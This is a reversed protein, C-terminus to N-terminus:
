RIVDAQNRPLLKLFNNRFSIPGTISIFSEGLLPQPDILYLADDVRLGSAVEFENAGSDGPGGPPMANTVIVNQVTVLAGEFPSSAQASILSQLAVADLLTPVISLGSQEIEVAPDNLQIQSFFNNVRAREITIRDGVAVTPTEATFSYIGSNEVGIFEASNSDLQSWFGNSAVATVVMDNMTILEGTLTPDTKVEYVTVLQPPPPDFGGIPAVPDPLDCLDGLGNSDTDAQVGPDLPTPPNFVGVCNDATDDVGDGDADGAGAIGTYADPTTRAPLCSPENPWAGCALLPYAGAPADATIQAFTEGFEREACIRKSQGCVDILECNDAPVLTQILNDDGYLPLGGRMVLAVDDNGSDIIARLDSHNATSWITIDAVKGVAIEGIVDGFGAIQAVNKTALSVLEEDTFVGGWRDSWASACSLERAMNASGSSSWITGLGIKAGSAKFVPVMATNGYLSTDSRPSWVLRTGRTVTNVIDEYALGAGSDIAVPAELVDTSGAGIGSLCLFENRATADIGEAVRWVASFAATEDEIDPYACGNILQTGNSDGLPFTDVDTTDRGAFEDNRDLNRIMGDQNGSTVASTVGALVSRLEEWVIQDSGGGFGSPLQSFGRQGRRWDHRQLYKESNNFPVNHSFSASVRGNILGPSIVADTCMLTTATSFTAESSCDCGACVIDGDDVLVEANTLLGSEFFVDGQILVASGTGTTISCTGTSVAPLTRPCDGAMNSPTMTVTLTAMGENGAADGVTATCVSQTSLTVTAATFTSMSVDFSGGNTCLINPGTTVGVNDTATFTSQGTMGSPVTLTSPSFSATPAETDVPPSDCDGQLGSPGPPMMFFSPFQGIDLFNVVGDGNADTDLDGTATFDSTLAAYDLFNVSCDNNYDFDCANGYNDGNSDRQDANAVLVCNDADDPIGDADADAGDGKLAVRSSAPQSPASNLPNTLSSTYAWKHTLEAEEIGNDNSVFDIAQAHMAHTLLACIFINLVRTM